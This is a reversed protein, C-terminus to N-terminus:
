ADTPAQQKWGGALFDDNAKKRQADKHDKYARIAGRLDRGKHEVGDKDTIVTFERNARTENLVEARMFADVHPGDWEQQELADQIKKAAPVHSAAVAFEEAVTLEPGENEHVFQVTEAMKRLIAAATANDVEALIANMREIRHMTM